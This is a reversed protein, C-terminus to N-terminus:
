RTGPSYRQYQIANLCAGAFVLEGCKAGRSSVVFRTCTAICNGTCFGWDCDNGLAGMM